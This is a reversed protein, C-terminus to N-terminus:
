IMSQLQKIIELAKHDTRDLTAGSLEDASTIIDQEAAHLIRYLVPRPINLWKSGITVTIPNPM